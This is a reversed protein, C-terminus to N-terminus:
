RVFVFVLDSAQKYGIVEPFLEALYKFGIISKPKM